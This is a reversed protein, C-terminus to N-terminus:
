RKDEYRKGLDRIGQSTVRIAGDSVRVLGARTMWTVIEEAEDATFGHPAVARPFDEVRCWIAMSGLIGLATDMSIRNGYDLFCEHILAATGARSILLGTNLLASVPTDGYRTILLRKLESLSIAEGTRRCHRLIRTAAAFAQLLTPLQLARVEPDLARSNFYEHLVRIYTEYVGQLEGHVWGFTNAIRVAMLALLPEHFDPMGQKGSARIISAAHKHDQLHTRLVAMLESDTLTAVRGHLMQPFWDRSLNEDSPRSTVLGGGIRNDGFLQTLAELGGSPAEDLGDTVLLVRSRELGRAQLAPFSRIGMETCARELAEEVSRPVGLALNVFIPVTDRHTLRAQKVLEVVVRRSFTSKGCGPSGVVYVRSSSSVISQAIEACGVRTSPVPARRLWRRWNKWQMPLDGEPLSVRMEVSISILPSGSQQGDAPELIGSPLDGQFRDELRSLYEQFFEAPPLREIEPLYTSAYDLREKVLVVEARSLRQYLEGWSQRLTAVPFTMAEPSGSGPLSRAVLLHTGNCALYIPTGGWVAYSIVQREAELLSEGVAKAEVAVLANAVTREAGQYLIFDAYKTKRERGFYMPVPPKDYRDLDSYGLLDFLRLLIKTEVEAENAPTALEIRELERAVEDSVQPTSM